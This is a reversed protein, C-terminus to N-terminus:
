RVTHQLAYDAGLALTIYDDKAGQVRVPAGGKEYCLCNIYDTKSKLETLYKMHASGGMGAQKFLEQLLFAASTYGGSGTLECGLAGKAAQNALMFYPTTYYNYFGKETSQDLDIGLMSYVSNGDGLWPNHDGFVILVAPIDSAELKEAFDLLRKNTDEIGKLYNNIINYDSENYGDRWKLLREGEDSPYPGHNQYSLSFSFYPQGGRAGDEFGRYVTDFFLEDSTLPAGKDDSFAQELFSYRDFGLYENVNVRNYFWSYWPHYGECFYGQERLYWVLSPAATRPSFSSFQGTLFCRETDVTGGAFINTVLRGSYARRELEHLPAYIDRTLTVGDFLSFDNYAELMVAIIAVKKDEPIDDDQYAALAGEAAQEDYGEPPKDFLESASHIFPYLMGRSTYAATPTWAGAGSGGAAAYLSQSPYWILCVLALACASLPAFIWRISARPVPFASRKIILIVTLAIPLLAGLIVPLSITLKYRGTINGAEKALLLDQFLLPDNRLLLKYHNVLALTVIILATLLNSLWPRGTAFYFIFILLMVPLANLFIVLPKKVSEGGMSLSLMVATILILSSLLALATSVRPLRKM